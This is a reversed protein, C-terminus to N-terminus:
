PSSLTARRQLSSQRTYTLSPPIYAKALASRRHRVSYHLPRTPVHPNYNATESITDPNPHPLALAHTAVQSALLIFSSLIHMAIRQTKVELVAGLNTSAFSFLYAKSWRLTSSLTRVSFDCRDHFIPQRCFFGLAVHDVFYRYVFSLGVNSCHNASRTHPIYSSQFQLDQVWFGRCRDIKHSQNWNQM